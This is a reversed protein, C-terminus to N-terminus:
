FDSKEARMRRIHALSMSFILGSDNEFEPVMLDRADLGPVLKQFFAGYKL